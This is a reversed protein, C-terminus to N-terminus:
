RVDQHLAIVGDMQHGAVVVVEAVFVLAGRLPQNGGAPLQAKAAIDDGLHLHRANLHAGGIDSPQHLQALDVPGVAKQAVGMHHRARDAVPPADARGPQEGGGVQLDRGMHQDGAVADIDGPYGQRVAPLVGGDGVHAGAGRDVVAGVHGHLGAQQVELSIQVAGRHAQLKEVFQPILHAKVGHIGQAGLDGSVCLGGPDVEPIM